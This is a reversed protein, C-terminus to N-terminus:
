MISQQGAAHWLCSRYLATHLSDGVKRQVTKRQSGLQQGRGGYLLEGSPADIAYLESVRRSLISSKALLQAAEEDKYDRLVDM